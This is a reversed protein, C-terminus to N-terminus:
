RTGSCGRGIRRFFGVPLQTYDDVTLDALPTIAESISDGGAVTIAVTRMGAAKAAQLGVVTDEFVLCHESKAGLKEATLLFCEPDPKSHEYMECSTYATCCSRLRARDLLHEVADATSGTAIATPFHRSSETFAASAGGILQPPETTFLRYFRKEIAAALDREALSPFLKKLEADIRRWTIGRFQGLSVDEGIAGLEDIEGLVAAIARDTLAESDVLTGDMDFIVAKIGEIPYTM